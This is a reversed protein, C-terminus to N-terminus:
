LIGSPNTPVGNKRVEFHLHPGTSLGTSGVYAITEGQNVKQGNSVALSSCHGYLSVVGDGHDIMVCNGYGGYRAAYIVVGGAAAKIPTGSPSGMDLGTHMKRKGLIPHMRYGFNSTIRGDVPRIFKGKWPTVVIGGGSKNRRQRQQLM